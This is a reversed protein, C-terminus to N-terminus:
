SRSVDEIEGHRFGAGVNFAGFTRAVKASASTSSASAGPLEFSSRSVSANASWSELFQVLVGADVRRSDNNGIEFGAFVTTGLPADDDGAFVASALVTMLFLALSEKRLKMEPVRPCAPARM